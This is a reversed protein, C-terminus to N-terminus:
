ARAVVFNGAYELSAFRGMLLRDIRSFAMMGALRLTAIDKFSDKPNPAAMRSPLELRLRACADGNMITPM